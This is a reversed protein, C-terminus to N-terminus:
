VNKLRKKEEEIFKRLDENDKDQKEYNLIIKTLRDVEQKLRNVEDDEGEGYYGVM